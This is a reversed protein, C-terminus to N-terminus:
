LKIIKDFFNINKFNHSIIIITKIKKLYKIDDMIEKELKEDLANTSEDFILVDPNLYLARAIGLRQIEGGSLLKGKEGVLTEIGNPLNKILNELKSLRIANHFRQEDFDNEDFLCVNDKFSADVIFVSQPVYGIAKQWKTVVYEINFGNIEISGSNPQLLGTIINLLTSKGSGSPGLIGMCEGKILTFNINKLLQRDTFNFNVNKVDLKEFNLKIKNTNKNEPYLFKMEELILSKMSRSIIIRQLHSVLRTVGPVLRIAALIFISLTSSISALDSNQYYLFVFSIVVSFILFLEFIYRPLQLFSNIYFNLSALNNVVNSFLKIVYQEKNLIKIEKISNFSNLLLKNSELEKEAQIKGWHLFKKKNFNFVLFAVIFTFICIVVTSYFSSYLLVALILFLLILELIVVFYCQMVDVLTTVNQINRLLLPSGKNLHYSYTQYIYKKYLDITVRYRLTKLFYNQYLNVSFLFTNKLLFFLFLLGILILFINEKNSIKFFFVFKEILFNEKKFFYDILPIFVGIGILEIITAIFQLLILYYFINKEKKNLFAVNRYIYNFYM